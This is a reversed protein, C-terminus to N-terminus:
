LQKHGREAYGGGLNSYRSVTAGSSFGGISMETIEATDYAVYLGELGSRNDPEYELVKHNTGRFEVTLAWVDAAGSM